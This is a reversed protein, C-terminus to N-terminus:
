LNHLSPNLHQREQLKVQNIKQKELSATNSIREELVARQIQEQRLTDELQAQKRKSESQQTRLEDVIYQLKIAQNKLLVDDKQALLEENRRSHARDRQVLLDYKAEMAELKVTIYKEM